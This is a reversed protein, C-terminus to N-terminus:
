EYLTDNNKDLLRVMDQYDAPTDIDRDEFHGEPTFLFVDDSYKRFLDKAGRDGALGHLEPFLRRPFIVPHSRRNGAAVAGLLRGSARYGCLLQNILGSTVYPMDALIIMVLECSAEVDSLGTIISTSMGQLYDRNIVVRLKPHGLDTKLSDKIERARHGLVLTVRDLDSGLAQELARDLLSRGGLELMQKPSGM